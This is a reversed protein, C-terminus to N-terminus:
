DVIKLEFTLMEEKSIEYDIITNKDDIIIPRNDIFITTRYNGENDGAKAIFRLINEPNNSTVDSKEEIICNYEPRDANYNERYNNTTM